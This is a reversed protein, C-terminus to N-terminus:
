LTLRSRNLFVTADSDEKERDVLSSFALLGDLYVEDPGGLNEVEVPFSDLQCFAPFDFIEVATM